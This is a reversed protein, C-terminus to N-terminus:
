FKRTVKRAASNLLEGKLPRSALPAADPVYPAGPVRAINLMRHVNRAPSNGAGEKEALLISPPTLVGPLKVYFDIIYKTRVTRVSTEGLDGTPCPLGLPTSFM